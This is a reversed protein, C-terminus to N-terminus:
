QKVPCKDPPVHALGIGEMNLAIARRVGLVAFCNGHADKFYQVQDSLEEPNDFRAPRADCAAIAFFAMAFFATARGQLTPRKM